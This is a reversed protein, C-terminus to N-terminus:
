PAHASHGGAEGHQAPDNHDHGDLTIGNGAAIVFGIGSGFVLGIVLLWLSRDM